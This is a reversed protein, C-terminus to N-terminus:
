PERNVNRRMRWHQISGFLLHTKAVVNYGAREYFGLANERAELVVTTHGQAAAAAELARLIALGLGHGQCDPAVAMYRVQATEADAAQVRGCAQTIGQPTFAALNLVWPSHSSLTSADLADSESGRPQGWPQRLVRYRLDFVSAWEADSAPAAIRPAPLQM